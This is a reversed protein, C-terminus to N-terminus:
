QPAQHTQAVDFAHSSVTDHLTALKALVGMGLHIFAAGQEHAALAASSAWHEVVYFAQTDDYGRYVDYALNGPERRAAAALEHVAAVAENLHENPFRFIAVHFIESSNVASAAAKSPPAAPAASETEPAVLMLGAAILPIALLNAM